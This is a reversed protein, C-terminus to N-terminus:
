PLELKAISHDRALYVNLDTPIRGCPQMMARTVREFFQIFREVNFRALNEGNGISQLRRWEHVLDFTPVHMYLFYDMRSWIPTYKADIQDNVFTRWVGSPDETSELENIPISLNKLPLCGM